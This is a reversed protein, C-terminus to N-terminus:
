EKTTVTCKRSGEFWEEIKRKKLIIGKTFARPASDAHLFPLRDLRSKVVKRQDLINM